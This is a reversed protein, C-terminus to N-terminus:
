CINEEDKRKQQIVYSRLIRFFTMKLYSILMSAIRVTNNIHKEEESEMKKQFRFKNEKM